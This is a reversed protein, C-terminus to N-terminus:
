GSSWWPLGERAVRLPKVSCSCFNNKSSSLVSFWHSGLRAWTAPGMQGTSSVCTEPDELSWRKSEGPTGLEVQFLGCTVRHRVVVAARSLFFPLHPATLSIFSYLKGWQAWTLYLAHDSCGGGGFFLKDDSILFNINLDKCSREHEHFSRVIIKFM